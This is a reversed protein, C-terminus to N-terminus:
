WCIGSRLACGGHGRADGALTKLSYCKLNSWLEYTLFGILIVTFSELDFTRPGDPDSFNVILRGQSLIVSGLLNQFFNTNESHM